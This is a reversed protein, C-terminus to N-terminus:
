EVSFSIFEEPHSRIYRYITLFTDPVHQRYDHYIRDVTERLLADEELDQGTVDALSKGLRENREELVDNMEVLLAIISEQDFFRLGAQIGIWYSFEQRTYALWCYFELASGCAHDHWVHFMFLARQGVTLGQYVEAKVSPRKGRLPLLVPEICARGLHEPTLSDFLERKMAILM